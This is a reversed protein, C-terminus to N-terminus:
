ALPQIMLNLPMKLVMSPWSLLMKMRRGGLLRKMVQSQGLRILCCRRPVALSMDQQLVRPMEM